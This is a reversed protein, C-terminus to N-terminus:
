FENMIGGESVLRIHESGIEDDPLAEPVGCSSSNVNYCLLTKM